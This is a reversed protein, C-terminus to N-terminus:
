RAPVGYMGRWNDYIADEDNEWVRRLAGESLFSWGDQESTESVDGALKSLVDLAKEIVEEESIRRTQAIHKLLAAHGASLWFQKEVADPLRSMNRELINDIPQLL